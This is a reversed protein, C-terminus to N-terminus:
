ICIYKYTYIISLSTTINVTDENAKQKLTEYIQHGANELEIHM